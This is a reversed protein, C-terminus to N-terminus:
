IVRTSPRGEQVWTVFAHLLLHYDSDTKAMRVAAQLPTETVCQSVATLTNIVTPLFEPVAIM